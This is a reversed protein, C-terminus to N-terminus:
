RRRHGKFWLVQQIGSPRNTFRMTTGLVGPDFHIREATADARWAGADAGQAAALETGADELAGWLALKCPSLRGRGCYRNSYRGRVRQGLLTRLDKHVYWTRGGIFQTTPSGARSGMGTPDDVLPGLVPSLVADTIRPWASDIIAAGPDDIKGDLARDLRSAGRAAWSSLLQYMRRARDSPPRLGGKRLVQAVVPWVHAARFDTTAAANMASVVSALTHRRRRRIGAELMDSRYISGYGWQDDAAPFGRAPKNNWNVLEGSRPNVVQPHRRPALFGRWEFRGRGDTPLGPDVGGARIPLRGASFMAIDRDDAYAVNFTFPSQAASRLFQRANRPRNMSLDQFLLQWLVDRGRSARKESIAVRKGGVTGYGTVPGHLTTRFSVKRGALTGADFAGMRRCRGRYRYRTDSGCLTEVYEDIMDNGASTLSWAFDQGRGILMYGPFGPASAGRTDIGGGHLDMELTLGPYFYGIQPGAVFLPHGTASRSRGVMLFNSMHPPSPMVAARATANAAPASDWGQFSGSDLVRNGIRRKPLRNQYPFRRDITTPAEPDLRERLDNWVSLGRKAGLRDRLSDFFMSRSAEDGGGRGFLRGAFANVAYIDNRTLPKDSRNTARYYANGGAIYSDIDRLLQRGKPGQRRLVGTQRALFRETQRSPEFRQGSLAVGFPDLGPVDLAALATANRALSILLYRDEITVWGAGWAVDARTKGTIHPVNWRDRVIKVGPRPVRERRAPGQGRTGFTEPKFYKILDGAGVAGRLPTLGDYLRAQDDAEPPPPVDGYQGSPIINRAFGAYDRALASPAGALAVIAAVLVARAVSKV